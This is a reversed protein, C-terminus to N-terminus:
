LLIATIAAIHLGLMEGTIEEARAVTQLIADSATLAKVHRQYGHVGALKEGESTYTILVSYTKM